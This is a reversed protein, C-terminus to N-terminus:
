AVGHLDYRHVLKGVRGLFGFLAGRRNRASCSITTLQRKLLTHGAEIQPMENFDKAGVSSFDPHHKCTNQFEASGVCNREERARGYRRLYLSDQAPHLVHLVRLRHAEASRCEVDKRASELRKSFLLDCESSPYKSPGNADGM